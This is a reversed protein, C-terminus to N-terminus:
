RHQKLFEIAEESNNVDLLQIGNPGTIPSINKNSTTTIKSKPLVTICYKVGNKALAPYVERGLFTQIEPNLTSKMNSEDIILAQGKNTRLQNMGEGLVADNFDKLTITNTNWVELVANVDSVWYTDETNPISHIKTKM